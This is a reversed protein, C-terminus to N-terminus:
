LDELKLILLAYSNKKLFKPVLRILRIAEQATMNRKIMLYAAVITASRSIGAHCHVLVKNPPGRSNGNALLAQHIFEAAEMFYRSLNFSITDYAPIGLFEM